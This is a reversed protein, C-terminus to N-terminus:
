LWEELSKNQEQKRLKGTNPLVNHDKLVDWNSPDKWYELRTPIIVEAFRKRKEILIYDMGEISCAIGTTGSGAFPDLVVGGKPCVLRVLWRMVNIPKLTAIDNKRTKEPKKKSIEYGGEKNRKDVIWKTGEMFNQQREEKDELEELGANRESKHAKACYFFRSAGGKDGYCEINYKEKVPTFQTYAEHNTGRSVIKPTKSVGSQEDLLRIPCDPHCHYSGVIEYGKKGYEKEFKDIPITVSYNEIKDQNHKHTKLLTSTKVAKVGVAECEPHHTLILNAPWRGKKGYEAVSTTRKDGM